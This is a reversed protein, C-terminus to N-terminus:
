HAGCCWGKYYLKFHLVCQFTDPALCELHCKYKGRWWLPELMSLYYSSLFLSDDECYFHVKEKQARPMTSACIICYKVAASRADKLQPVPMTSYRLPWNPEIQPFFHRGGVQEKRATSIKHTGVVRHITLKNNARWFRSQNTLSLCMDCVKGALILSFSKNRSNRKLIHWFYEKMRQQSSAIPALQTLLWHTLTADGEEM